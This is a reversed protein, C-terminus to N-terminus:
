LAKEMREIRAQLNLARIQYPAGATGAAQAGQVLEAVTTNHQQALKTLNERVDEVTTQVYGVSSGSSVSDIRM